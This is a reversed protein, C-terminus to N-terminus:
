PTRQGQPGLRRDVHPVVSNGSDFSIRYRAVDSAGPVGVVFTSEAGPALTARQVPARGSAALAGAGNFVSVVATVHDIPAGGRPNRIIGRVTLQDGDRDHALALLELQRSASQRADRPAVGPALASGSALIAIAAITGVMAAGLVVTTITRSGHGAAAPAQWGDYIEAALAAVRAESRHREERALRWAMTAMVGAWALAAITTFLLVGQSM